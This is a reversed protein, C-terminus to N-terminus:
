TAQRALIILSLEWYYTNVKVIVGVGKSQTAECFFWKSWICIMIWVNQWLCSIRATYANTPYFQPTFNRQQKKLQPQHHLKNRIEINKRAQVKENSLHWYVAYKVLGPSQALSWLSAQASGQCAVIQLSLEQVRPLISFKSPCFNLNQKVCCLM